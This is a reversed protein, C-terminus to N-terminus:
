TRREPGPGPDNGADNGPDNGNDNHPVPGSDHRGRGRGWDRYPHSVLAANYYRPDHSVEEGAWGPKVFPEDARGLEVEAVVLGANDGEFVDVEWLHGAVPVEHRTKEILPGECLGELMERGDAAPIEYEYEHREVGVTRSKINLWAQDGSLRVRVSSRGGAAMYGQRMELSRHVQRRWDDNVVLFKREIERAV